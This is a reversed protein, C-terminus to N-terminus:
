RLVGLDTLDDAPETVSCSGYSRFAARPDPGLSIADLLVAADREALRAAVADRDAGALADATAALVNLFGHHEFGTDPDRHRVANHLGATCKFAVGAGAAAVIRGGLEAEGPFAEATTGGTRLKLRLGHAALAACAADLDGDHRPLEVYVPVDLGLRDRASAVSAVAEGSVADVAVEVAALRLAAPLAGVVPELRALPVVLAIGLGDPFREAAHTAVDALAPENVVFSGVLGALRSSRLSAHGAVAAPAPANGPPFLAADDVLGRFLEPVPAPVTSM